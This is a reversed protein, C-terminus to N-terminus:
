LLFSIFFNVANPLTPDSIVVQSEECWNLNMSEGQPAERLNRLETQWRRQSDAQINM